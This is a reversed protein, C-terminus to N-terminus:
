NSSTAVAVPNAQDYLKVIAGTIDVGPAVYVPLIQQSIPLILILNNQKAYQDIIPKIKVSIRNLLENQALQSEEQLDEELRRGKKVRKDIERQIEAQADPSLTRAGAQLRAQYESVEKRLSELEIQQPRFRAQFDQVGKRGEQTNLLAVQVNIMAIKGSVGAPVATASAAQKAEPVKEFSQAALVGTCLLCVVTVFVFSKVHM